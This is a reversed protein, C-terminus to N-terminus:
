PVELSPPRWIPPQEGGFGAQSGMYAHIQFVILQGISLLYVM